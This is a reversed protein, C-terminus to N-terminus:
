EKMGQARLSELGADVLRIIQEACANYVEQSQGYPDAVDEQGGGWEALTKIKGELLPFQRLLVKKHEATMGIILDAADIFEMEVPRSQHDSIDVLDKVAEVAEPSVKAGYAAFLGASLTVINMGKKQGLARAIGEAMPSRCTNGTCVFLINM